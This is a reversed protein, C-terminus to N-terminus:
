KYMHVCATRVLEPVAAPQVIVNCPAHRKHSPPRHNAEALARLTDADFGFRHVLRRTRRPPALALAARVTDVLAQHTVRRYGEDQRHASCAAAALMAGYVGTSGGGVAEACRKLWERQGLVVPVTSRTSLRLGLPAVTVGPTSTLSALPPQGEANTRAWPHVILGRMGLVRRLELPGEEESDWLCMARSPGLLRIRGRGGGGGGGGGGEEQELQLEFRRVARSALPPTVYCQTMTATTAGSAVRRARKEDQAMGTPPPPPSVRLIVHGSAQLALVFAVHPVDSVHGLPVTSPAVNLRRAKAKRRPPPLEGKSEEESEGEEEAEVGEAEEVEPLPLAPCIGVLGMLVAQGNQVSTFKFSHGGRHQGVGISLLAAKVDDDNGKGHEQVKGEGEREAGEMDSGGEARLTTLEGTQWAKHGGAEFATVCVSRKSRYRPPLEMLVAPRVGRGVLEPVQVECMGLTVRGTELDVTVEDRGRAVSLYAVPQGFVFPGGAEGVLVFGTGQTDHRADLPALPTTDGGGGGGYGGSPGEEILLGWYLEGTRGNNPSKPNRLGEVRWSAVGRTLLPGLAWGSATFTLNSPAQPEPQVHNADSVHSFALDCLGLPAPGLRHQLAPSPHALVAQVLPSLGLPRLPEITAPDCTGAQADLATLLTVVLTDLVLLQEEDDDHVAQRQGLVSPGHASLLRRCLGLAETDRLLARRTSVLLSNGHCHTLLHKLLRRLFRLAAASVDRAGFFARWLGEVHLYLGRLEAVTEEEETGAGGGGGCRQQQCILTACLTLLRLVAVAVAQDSSARRGSALAVVAPRLTPLFAELRQGDVLACLLDLLPLAVDVVADGIPPSESVSIFGARTLMSCAESLVVNSHRQNLFHHDM